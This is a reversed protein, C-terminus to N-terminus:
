SGEIGEILVVLVRRIWGKGFRHFMAAKNYLLLRETALDVSVKHSDSASLASLSIPGFHGDSAVGLSTQLLRTATGQGQNVAADFVMLAVAWPMKDCQCKLWYDKEYIKKADRRELKHIDIDPYQRKSIGYKTEGGRDNPDNVYGGEAAVIIDFALDFDTALTETM